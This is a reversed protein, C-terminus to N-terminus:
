WAESFRVCDVSGLMTITAAYILNAAVGVYDGVIGGVYWGLAMLLFCLLTIALSARLQKRM